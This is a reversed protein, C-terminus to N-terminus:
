VRESNLFKLPKFDYCLLTPPSSSGFYVCLLWVVAIKKKLIWAKRSNYSIWM